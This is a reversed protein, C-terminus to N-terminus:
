MRFIVKFFCYSVRINLPPNKLDNETMFLLTSGDISHACFLDSYEVLDISELWERIESGTWDLISTVGSGLNAM